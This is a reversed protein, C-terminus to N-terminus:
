SQKSWVGGARGCEGGDGDVQVSVGVKVGVEWEYEGEMGGVGSM